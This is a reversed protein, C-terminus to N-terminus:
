GSKELSELFTILDPVDVLKGEWRTEDLKRLFGIPFTTILMQAGEQPKKIEELTTRVSSEAFPFQEGHKAYGVVDFFKGMALVKGVGVDLNYATQGKNVMTHEKIIIAASGNPPINVVEGKQRAIMKLKEITPNTPPMIGREYHIAFLLPTFM